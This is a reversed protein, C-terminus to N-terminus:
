AYLGQAGVLRFRYKNRPAVKFISLRSFTDESHRGKGNMLGSWFPVPGVEVGDTSRTRRYLSDLQTPVRGVDQDPFFGLTSHIRVFLNLSAEREWDLLSITHQEPSDIMEDGVDPHHNLEKIVLAGYLGDTRQAGVHSHYWHTGPPFAKFTYDFHAGPVIPPQSVFGVGDMWPTNKQHM